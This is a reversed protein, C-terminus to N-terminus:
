TLRLGTQEAVCASRLSQQTFVAVKAIISDLCCVVFASIMIRPHVPQHLANMLTHLFVPQDAGKNNAYPM